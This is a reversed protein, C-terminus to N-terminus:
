LLAHADTHALSFPLGTTLCPRLAWPGELYSTAPSDFLVLPAVINRESLPM